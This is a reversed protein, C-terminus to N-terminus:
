RKRTDIIATIIWKNEIKVLTFNNTGKHSLKGNVYFEYPTWVTALAQDQLYKFGLIREEFSINEAKTGISKYFQSVDEISFTVPKGEKLLVTSFHVKEHTVSHVLLTDHSHMGKFFTAITAKLAEKEPKQAFISKTSFVLLLSLYLLKKM